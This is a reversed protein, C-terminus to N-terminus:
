KYVQLKQIIKQTNKLINLLVYLIALPPHGYPTYEKRVFGRSPYIQLVIFFYLIYFFLYTKLLINSKTSTKLNKM